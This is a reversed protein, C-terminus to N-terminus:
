KGAPTFVCGGRTGRKVIVNDEDSLTARLQLLKIIPSDYAAPTGPYREPSAPPMSVAGKFMEGRFVVRTSPHNGSRHSPVISYTESKVCSEGSEPDPDGSM